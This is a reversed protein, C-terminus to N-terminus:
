AASEKNEAKFDNAYNEFFDKSTIQKESKKVKTLIFDVAKEELVPGKLRELNESKSYFDLVIKEQGPRLMAEAYVAQQLDADAIEINNERATEALIIGLRVRRRAIEKYENQMQEDTKGKFMEPNTKRQNRVEAWMSDFDIQFMGPPIEFKYQGDIKDFLMKKMRLRALGNFDSEIKQKIMENLKEMSEVGLKKAFDDNLDEVSNPRMVSQVKVDFIAAKGALDKNNYNKPFVVRVKLAAGAKAGILQDEFGPIFQNSGLELRIGEGKGGDFVKDDVKGEFDILVADGKRAAHDKPADEFNKFNKLIDEHAKRLDEESVSVKLTEIEITNWDIAPIQPFKEVKCTFTLGKTEDFGKIEVFPQLAPRIAKEEFIQKLVVDVEKEIAASLLSPGEKKRIMNIPVNGDRFGPMSYTKQKETLLNDVESLIEKAEVTVEFEEVLGQNSLIKIEM